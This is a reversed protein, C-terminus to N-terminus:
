YCIIVVLCKGNFMSNAILGCPFIAKGSDSYALPDCSTHLTSSSQVNGMLQTADFNKIYQRHNQYFNTLRYYMFIPGKMTNPVTFDITCRPIQLNNPNGWSPDLFSTANTYYYTPSQISSQNFKRDSLQYDYLSSTLYVPNTYQQCYSYNIM